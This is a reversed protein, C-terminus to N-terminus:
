VRFNDKLQYNRWNYAVGIKERWNRRATIAKFIRVEFDLDELATHPEDMQEGTIFHHMTERDTKYGLNGKDTRNNFYHNDLIHQRYAKSKAFTEAALHWLCFDSKFINLDISTIKCANKDFGVNYATLEPSFKAAAKALWANIAKSSALMRTGDDLMKTYNQKKKEAYRKSWIGVNNPDYFLQKGMNEAVIIACQTYVEGRLDVIKAAFDYVQGDITTETDVICFHKKRGM